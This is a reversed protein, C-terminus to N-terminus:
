VPNCRHSSGSWVSFLNDYVRVALSKNRSQLFSWDPLAVCLSFRASTSPAPLRVELGAAVPAPLVLCDPDVLGKIALALIFGILLSQRLKGAVSDPHGPRLQQWGVDCIEPLATSDGPVMPAIITFLDALSGTTAPLSLIARIMGVAPLISQYWSHSSLGFVASLFSVTSDDLVDPPPHLLSPLRFSVKKTSPPPSPLGPGTAVRECRKAM